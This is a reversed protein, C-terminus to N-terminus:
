LCCPVVIWLQVYLSFKTKENCLCGRRKCGKWALDVTLWFANSIRISYTLCSLVQPATSCKTHINCKEHQFLAKAVWNLRNRGLCNTISHVRGRPLNMSQVPLSQSIETAVSKDVRLTTSSWCCIGRCILIKTINKLYCPFSWEIGGEAAETRSRQGNQTSSPWSKSWSLHFYIVKALLWDM